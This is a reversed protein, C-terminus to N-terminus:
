PLKSAIKKSKMKLLIFWLHRQYQSKGEGCFKLNKICQTLTGSTHSTTVPYICIKMRKIIPFIYKATPYLKGIKTLFEFNNLRHCFRLM